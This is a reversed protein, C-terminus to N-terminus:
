AERLNRSLEGEVQDPEGFKELPEGFVGKVHM